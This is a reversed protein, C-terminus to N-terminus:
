LNLQPVIRTNIIHYFIRIIITYACQKQPFAWRFTWFMTSHPLPSEIESWVVDLAAPSPPMSFQKSSHQILSFLICNKNSIRWILLLIYVSTFTYNKIPLNGVYHLLLHIFYSLVIYLKKLISFSWIGHHINYLISVIMASNKKKKKFM